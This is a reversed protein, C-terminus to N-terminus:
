QLRLPISGPVLRFQRRGAPHRRIEDRQLIARYCQPLDQGACFAKGAGTIVVVKTEDDNAVDDLADSMDFHLQPSMANRQDPRNITLIAIGDDRAEFLVPDSM